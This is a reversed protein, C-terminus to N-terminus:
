AKRVRYEISHLRHTIDLRGRDLKAGDRENEGPLVHDPARLRSRALRRRERQGDERLEALVTWQRPHEDQLWRALQSGLHFRGNAIEGPERVQARHDHEAPDTVPPLHLGQLVAYVDDNGGRAPQQIVQALAGALQVADLKKHQVFGIPHEVHPEQRVHAADEVSAGAVPVGREKGGGDRRLNFREDLPCHSIRLGDLDAQAARRLVCDLMHDVGHGVRLLGIQHELEELAHIVLRHKDEAAGFVAGVADRMQELSVVVGHGHQVRVAGLALALLGQAAKAVSAVFHEDGGIDGRAPQVDRDHAVHDVVVHRLM